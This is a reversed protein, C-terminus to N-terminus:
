TRAPTRVGRGRSATQQKQYLKTAIKDVDAEERVVMGTCDFKNIIQTPEPQSRNGNQDVESALKTSMSGLQVPTRLLQSIQNSRINSLDLVPTVTFEFDDNDEMDLLAQAVADIPGNALKESAKTAKDAYEVIGNAFGQSVFRGITEFVKSPSHEDLTANAANIALRAIYQAASVVSISGSRIGQAFGLALNYGSNNFEGGSSNLTGKTTSLMTGITGSTQPLITALSKAFASVINTAGTAFTSKVATLKQESDTNLTTLAVKNDDILKKLETETLGKITKMADDYKKKMDDLNKQLDTNVKAMSENYSSELDALNEALDSKVEATSESWTQKLEGLKEALNSNIETLTDEHTAKLEAMDSAMTDNIATMATEFELKLNDLDTAAQANLEQIAKATDDKVGELEQEARVRAQSYKGEFLTVYESLQDDTLTLLAKIQAKSSPGMAQIEKILADGVGRAALEDLSQRWESIAAGQDQLNKLLDEGSVETDIEVSDFLGYSSYIADARSKVSDEYAKNQSEIDQLLKENISKQNAAYQERTNQRDREAQDLISNLDKFYSKDEDERKEDADKKAKESDEYYRKDLDALKKNADSQAKAINKQYETDLREREEAADKQADRVGEIYETQADYITKLRTYVERDIAARETSGIKYQNRLAQYLDLEQQVSITGYFQREEIIAKLKDLESKVTAQTKTGGLGSKSDSLASQFGDTVAGGINAGGIGAADIASSQGGTLMSILSDITTSIGGEGQAIGEQMTDTMVGSVDIGLSNATDILGKSGNQIGTSISTPVWEGIGSFLKSLSHVGLSDRVGEETAKAMNIGAQVAVQSNKSLGNALGKDCWGGITEFVKSPSHSDFSTKSAKIVANAVDKAAFVATDKRDSIGKALGNILDEGLTKFKKEYASGSDIAAQLLNTIATKLKDKKSEIDSIPADLITSISKQFPERNNDFSAKANAIVDGGLTRFSATIDSMAQLAPAVIEFQADSLTDIFSKLEVGFESLTTNGSFLQALGGSAKLGNTFDSFKQLAPLMTDTMLNLSTTATSLKSEDIDGFTDILGHIQSAFTPLDVTGLFAGVFGGASPIEQAALAFSKLNGAMPKMTELVGSALAAQESTVNAFAGIFDALLTGFTDIDNEGMFEGIFGGSNPIDQAVNAFAKLNEVMPSMASLVDTMHAADAVAIGTFVTIFNALMAGFTDIDNNGMFDGIFGSSNPIDQAAAAFEGLAKAMPRMAELVDASHSANAPDIIELASVLGALQEGFVQMSSKGFNFFRSIGDLIAAGTIILVADALNKVSDVTSPDFGQMAEVFSALAVGAGELVGGLLGGIAGGVFRGLGVGVDVLLDIGRMLATEDSIMTNMLAALGTTALVIGSVALIATGAGILAPVAVGGLAALAPTLLSIGIFLASIMALGATFKGLTEWSVNEVIPQILKLAGFFGMTGLLVAAVAAFAPILSLLRQTFAPDSMPIRDLAVLLVTITAIGVGFKALTEWSASELIPQVIKLAEFFGVTALLLAGVGILLLGINKVKGLFGNSGGSILNVSKFMFSLAISLAGVATSAIALSKVANRLSDQDIMSLLAVAGTLALLAVTVGILNGFMSSGSSGESIASAKSAVATVLEIAAILGVMKVLTLMGQDIVEPKMGGLLAIVVTFAALTVAIAGLIRQVKAGNALRASVATFLEIAGVIAVMKSLVSLGKSLEADTMLSLLKILGVMALLGLTTKLLNTQVKNGGGIRAALGMMIEVSALLVAILALNGIGKSITGPNIAALVAMVGVMAMIGVAMSMFNASIKHGGGIRAAVGFVLQIAAIVGLIATMKALGNELDNLTFNKLLALAGVLTLIAVSMGMLNMTVKQQKPIRSILAALTQYITIFGLMAGLIATAEWADGKINAISKLAVSMVVLAAAVGILGFGSTVMETNKMLKSAAVQIGTILGYAAVFVGIAVSLGILSRKLDDAPIQSLVWISAALVGIAFGMDRINTTTKYGLFKKTFANVAGSTASTLMSMSGILDSIQKVLILLVGGVVFTAIKHFDLNKITDGFDGFADTAKGGIFDVIEKLTDLIDSWFGKEGDNEIKKFLSSVTKLANAFKGTLWSAAMKVGEILGSFVRSGADAIFKLPDEANWLGVIFEKVSGIASQIGIRLLAVGVKIALLAYQLLKSSKLLEDIKVLFDGLTATASLAGDGIPIFVKAVEFAANGLFKLVQWGIDVVAFLGAFTRRLKESTEETIILGKTFKEFSQTIAYLQEKTKSPFIQEFAQSVPKLVKLLAVVSNKLGQIINERGSLGGMKKAFDDASISGSKLADRLSLLENRQKKTYGANALEEDSLNEIESSMRSVTETLMNGTLWSGKVAKEMSGASLALEDIKVGSEGAVIALTSGFKETDSIGEKMFNKWGSSLAGGLLTNRMDSIDGIMDGMFKGIGTWLAKAENFDGFVIEFTQAWGSGVSEKLTDMLKTFTNIQTAAESARKGIATTEDSYKALTSTLVNTTMWQYSLSDNFNRTASIAGKMTAGNANKGLVQYMGEATKKVTGAAVASDLLQQKFEVTAMNANEISKWDILKVYGASLAQAFNYMARSAEEANAGSLAAANSIGKIAAVASDLKVGANTFKGINQTMDAFSYITKDSYDNLEALYQNVKALSEGTSAMITQTSNMKLEMENFGQAIPDIALSKFVKEGTEVAQEGIRRLAGIGIESFLNFSSAVSGVSKELGSFDDNISSKKLANSFDKLSNQSQKIGKEFKDNEFSMEVIRQDIKDSM